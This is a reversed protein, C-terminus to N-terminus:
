TAGLRLDLIWGEERRIAPCKSNPVYLRRLLEEQDDLRRLSNVVARVQREDKVGPGPEPEILSPYIEAFVHSQGEGLTEFPWVKVSHSRLGELAAIGTLAQGGVSGAGNLKWVEQAPPRETERWRNEAGWGSTPRKRCLGPVKRKLANGWFPGKGDFHANLRAAADFRNNCNNPLDMVEAAIRKWIAEWGHRGTLQCATGKPYGFPFDFCCLLRRERASARRLLVEIQDVAQRRTSPNCVVTARSGGVAM